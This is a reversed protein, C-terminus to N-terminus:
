LKDIEPDKKATIIAIRDLTDTWLSGDIQDLFVLVDLRDELIDIGFLVSNRFIPRVLFCSSQKFFGINMIRRSKIYTKETQEPKIIEYIM